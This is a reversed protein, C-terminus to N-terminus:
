HDPLRLITDNLAGFVKRSKNVSIEYREHSYNVWTLELILLYEEPFSCM